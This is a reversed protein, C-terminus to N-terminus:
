GEIIKRLEEINKFKTGKEKEIGKLKQIYEPRLEPELHKEEYENIVYKIAENKNKFGFKGKVINLTRDQREELRVLAQIM